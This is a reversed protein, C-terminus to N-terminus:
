DNKIKLYILTMDDFQKCDETFKDIDNLLPLIPDDNNKFENFFNLLRNEGYMENKSNNADTIGDTYLILEDTLIIKETVYEFDEVIGLVIGSDIPLYKFENNEKILPPNHGANSFILEKTTTNYIGIWLTIFMSESNKEYLQNNLLYLVRSPNPNHTLLQKIMGQSNMALIAAPVGKGSADGIIIALHEDDLKYYDFFDGGVEKAPHSYGNIIYNETKISQTPLNAAQIKTAIDLETKIREKEGEIEKINEIYNNNFNILDTYSRALTGIETEENIYRSYIDVLKDTEIKENEHILNKIKSFSSIPEIVKKEIYKLVTLSPILFLLLLIDIFAMMLIIIENENLPLSYAIAAILIDDYSLIIGFIVICLITIQFRNMIVEPVSKANNIIVDSTIPRKSYIASFLYLVILQTLIITNNSYFGYDMIVIILLSLTFLIGTIEYFKPHEKNKSTEPVHFFNQKNSIWFGIIGFIFTSNTSNLFYRHEIINIMPITEPCILYFLAGHFESYLASCFITIALFLIVNNTNNLKPNTIERKSKFTTYWIKYGLYSVLFGSIASLLILSQNYGRILDCLLNGAVSGLAGYPGLILGSIILIGVHPSFGGGFNQGKDFYYIGLNFIIMLIFPIMIKKLKDNMM